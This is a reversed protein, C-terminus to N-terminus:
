TDCLAYIASTTYSIAYSIFIMAGDVTLTDSHLITFYLKGGDDLYPLFAKYPLNEGGNM